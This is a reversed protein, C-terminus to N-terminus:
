GKVSITQNTTTKLSYFDKPNSDIKLYPLTVRSVCIKIQVKEDAKQTVDDSDDSDSDLNIIVPGVAPMLADDNASYQAETDRVYQEAM